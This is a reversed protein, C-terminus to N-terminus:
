RLRNLISRQLDETLLILSAVSSEHGFVRCEVHEHDDEHSRERSM